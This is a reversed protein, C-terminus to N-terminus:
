SQNMPTEIQQWLSEVRETYEAWNVGLIAAMIREIGEAALHQAHYPADKEAGPEASDLHALDWADIDEIRIGAARVLLFESIEHVAVLAEYRWDGLRAIYFHVVGDVTQTYDGCTSYRMDQYDITHLEFELGM